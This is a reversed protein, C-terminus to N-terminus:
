CGKLSVICECACKASQQAPRTVRKAVPLPRTVRGGIAPSGPYVPPHGARHPRTVRRTGTQEWRSIRSHPTNIGRRGGKRPKVEWVM